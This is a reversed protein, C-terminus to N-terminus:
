QQKFLTLAFHVTEREEGDWKITVISQGYNEPYFISKEIKMITGEAKKEIWESSDPTHWVFPKYRLLVKEGHNFVGQDATPIITETVINSNEFEM